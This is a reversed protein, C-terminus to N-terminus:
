STLTGSTQNRTRKYRGVKGRTRLTTTQVDIARVDCDGIGVNVVVCPHTDHERVESADDYQDVNEDRRSEGRRSGHETKHTKLPYTRRENSKAHAQM